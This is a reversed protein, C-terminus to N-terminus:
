KTRRTKLSHKVVSYVSDRLLSFLSFLTANNEAGFNEPASFEAVTQLLSSSSFASSVDADKAYYVPKIMDVT